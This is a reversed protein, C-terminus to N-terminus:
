GLDDFFKRTSGRFVEGKGHELEELAAVTTANPIRADFPLGRRYVVQRYFMGVADSASIGIAAFIREAKKKVAPEIRANVSATKAM